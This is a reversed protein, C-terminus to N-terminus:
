PPLELFGLEEMDPGPGHELRCALLTAGEVVLRTRAILEEFGLRSHVNTSM